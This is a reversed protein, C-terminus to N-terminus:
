SRKSKAQQVHRTLEKATKAVRKGKVEKTVRVGFKKAESKLTAPVTKQANKRRISTRKGGHSIGLQKRIDHIEKNKLANFVEDIEGVTLHDDLLFPEKQILEIKSQELMDTHIHKINDEIYQIKQFKDHNKAFDFAGKNRIVMKWDFRSLTQNTHTNLKDVVTQPISSLEGLCGFDGKMIKSVCHGEKIEREERGRAIQQKLETRKREAEKEAEIQRKKIDLDQKIQIGDYFRPIRRLVAKTVEDNEGLRYWSGMSYSEEIGRTDLEEEILGKVLHIHKQNFHSTSTVANFVDKIMTQRDVRKQDYENGGRSIRKKNKNVKPPM